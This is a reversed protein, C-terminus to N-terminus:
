EGEREGPGAHQKAPIRCSGDHVALVNVIRRATNRSRTDHQSRSRNRARHDPRTRRHITAPGDVTDSPPSWGPSAPSINCRDWVRSSASVPFITQSIPPRRQVTTASMRERLASLDSRWAHNLSHGPRDLPRAAVPKRALDISHKPPSQQPSPLLGPWPPRVTAGRSLIPPHSSVYTVFRKEPASQVREFASKPELHVKHRLPNKWGMSIALFAVARRACWIKSDTTRFAGTSARGVAPLKGRCYPSRPGVASQKCKSNSPLMAM